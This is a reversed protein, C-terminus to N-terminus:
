SIKQSRRWIGLKEANQILEDRFEPHAIAILAEAREWTSKGKLNVIGYETAIYSVLSRTVSVITGSPLVPTVRSEKKGNKQFTSHMCIFAKGERSRFAGYTFDLQGGTGSIHRPGSSESSVQGFLDVEVCNNVAMVKDNQAINFPDNTYNVPYIACMPNNHLFDYTRKSGLAFTYVIKGQDINKRSGTVRGSEVMDVMSDTFMETHIGIERLDSKAIRAGIANPLGGIGLQVCCGDELEEMILEAIKEDTPTPQAAPLQPIPWDAEVVFDVESIHVAEEKGGLCRPLNPNVELIIRKAKECIARSFSCSTSFNFYGHRDMPTVALMAVDLDIINRYYAPVEHFLIPIFWCLGQDHIKRDIGSFHFSHYVFHCASPDVRVAEPIGAARTTARIKVDRLENKRKALARDLLLAQTSFMGYEVWDGSKVLKVAEEPTTLKKRYEDSYNNL